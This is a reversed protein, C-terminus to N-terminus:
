AKQAYKPSTHDFQQMFAVIQRELGYLTLFLHVFAVIQVRDEYNSWINIRFIVERMLTHFRAM